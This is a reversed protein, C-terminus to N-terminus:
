CSKLPVIPPRDRDRDGPSRGGRKSRRNPPLPWARLSALRAIKTTAGTEDIFVLRQPDLDPQTDFWVQRQALVDPRDQESAHATKKVTMAHRDLFRWVTSPAVHLGHDCRLMEALEVLTLDVQAAISGLTVERYAEIRHSRLDGGKPRAQISGSARFARVWRIATAVGIGFREAAARRSLGAEVSAIVRVRLDGSLTRAM